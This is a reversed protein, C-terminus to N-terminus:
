IRMLFGVNNGRIIKTVQDEKAVDEFDALFRNKDSFM